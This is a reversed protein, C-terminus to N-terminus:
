AKEQEKVVFVRSFWGRIIRDAIISNCVGLERALVRVETCKAGNHKKKKKTTKKKEYSKKLEFVRISERNPTM